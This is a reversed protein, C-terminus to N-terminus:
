GVPVPVPRGGPMIRRARRRLVARRTMTLLRRARCPAPMAALDPTVRWSRGHQPRSAAKSAAPQGIPFGRLPCSRRVRLAGANLNRRPRATIALGLRRGCQWTAPGPGAGGLRGPAAAAPSRSRAADNVTVMLAAIAVVGLGCRWAFGIHCLVGATSEQLQPGELQPAM